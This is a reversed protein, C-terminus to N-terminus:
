AAIKPERVSPELHVLAGPDLILGVCGDGLIAGGSIMPDTQFVEGLNKIVVEQKGVLEDAVLCRKKGDSEIVLLAPGRWEPRRHRWRGTVRVTVNGEEQLCEVAEIGLGAQLGPSDTM